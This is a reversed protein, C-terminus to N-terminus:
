LIIISYIIHYLITCRLAHHGRPSQLLSVRTQKQLTLARIAQCVVSKCLTTPFINLKHTKSVQQMVDAALDNIEDLVAYHSAKACQMLINYFRTIRHMGTLEPLFSHIIVSELMQFTAEITAALFLM